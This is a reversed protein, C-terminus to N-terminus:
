QKAVTLLYAEWKAAILDKDFRALVDKAKNGCSDAFDPNEVFDCLASAIAEPNRREVIRGNIKDNILMRAGGPESDTSVCPLGIAMAELLANSIGEYDSTILFIGSDKIDNLPYSSVGMFEVKDLVNEEECWKRILDKDKGDGYLQLIWDPHQKSFLAFAKIMIDYRKQYNDLRGVSVVTKNRMSFSEVDIISKVFIPNPIITSRSQLKESFFNAAGEIQFVGGKSRNIFFLEIRSPLNKLNITVYPNGRETMISPIGTLISVLKAAYSPFATFGIIVHPRFKKSVKLTFLVKQLRKLRGNTGAYTHIDIAEYFSQKTRAISADVSNYNVISVCHGKDVLSNAIFAVNKEVGGFGISNTLLLVRM